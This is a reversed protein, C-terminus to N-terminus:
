EIVRGGPAGPDCRQFWGGPLVSVHGEVELQSLRAAVQAAPLRTREVVQDLCAPSYGIAELILDDRSPEGTALHGEWGLDALVDEAKEVLKAGDRILEHCGKSLPSHISGPIAFVDRGQEGAQRATILSGSSQAAEVVLVGRSLGSILRNRRPFNGAISPTGPPFETVLCGDRALAHALTRNRAPYVIDPGTGLVALSSGRGALGGEHAAADIGLAMGSVICLGADSLARAFAQADRIGQPTANRSGVIAISAADLLETRGNAYLLPPPDTINLLSRPYRPDDLAIAHHAPAELWTLARELPHPLPGCEIADAVEAGAHELIQSRDAELVAAASGFAQLLRRQVRAPVRPVLTFRLWSLVDSPISASSSV